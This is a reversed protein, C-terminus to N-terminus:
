VMVYNSTEKLISNLVGNCWNVYTTGDNKNYQSFRKLKFGFLESKVEPMINQQRAAWHDPNCEAETTDRTKAASAMM